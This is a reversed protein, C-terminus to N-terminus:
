STKRGSADQFRALCHRRRACQLESLDFGSVFADLPRLGDGLPQFGALIIGLASVTFITYFGAMKQRRVIRPLVENVM